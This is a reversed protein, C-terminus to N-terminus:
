QSINLDYIEVLVQIHSRILSLDVLGRIGPGATGEPWNAAHMASRRYEQWVQECRQLASLESQNYCLMPLNDYFIVLDADAQQDAKGMCINYPQQGEIAQCDKGIQNMQRKLAAKLPAKYLERKQVAQELPLGTIATLESASIDREVIQAGCLSSAALWWLAAAFSKM